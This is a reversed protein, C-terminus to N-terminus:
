RRSAVRKKNKQNGKPAKRTTKTKRRRSRPKDDPYDFVHVYEFGRFEMRRLIGNTGDLIGQKFWKEEVDSPGSESLGSWKLFQDWTKDLPLDGQARKLLMKKLAIAQYNRYLKDSVFDSHARVKRKLKKKLKNVETLAEYSVHIKEHVLPVGRQQRYPRLCDEVERLVWNVGEFYARRIECRGSKPKPCQAGYTEEFYAAIHAGDSDLDPDVADFSELGAIADVETTLWFLAECIQSRQGEGNRKIADDIEAPISISVRHTKEEDSLTPRGRKIDPTKAKSKKTM